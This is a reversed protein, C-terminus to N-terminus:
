SYTLVDQSTQTIALMNADNTAKDATAIPANTFNATLITGAPISPWYWYPKGVGPTTKVLSGAVGAATTINLLTMVGNVMKECILKGMM